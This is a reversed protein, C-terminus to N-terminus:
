KFLNLKPQMKYDSKAMAVNKLGMAVGKSMVVADPGNLNAYYTYAMQIEDDWAEWLSPSLVMNESYLPLMMNLYYELKALSATKFQSFLQEYIPKESDICSLIVWSQSEEPLVTIALRHMVGKETHKIKDGDMDFDPAIYAYDAFKIQGTIKVACTSIGNHTGSLIQSDFHAKVPEFEQMKLQLMRYYGVMDSSTFAPPNEKFCEKFVDVSIRHKYYEFIFAKYAYVFKMKESTEDFNPAGKEIAAFAINDHYDCFCTETTADNASIRSMEVIPVIVGNDLPILLPQKKANMMYVHRETGALLSIIKNNQLAHAAKIRGKCSAQDPHVCYKKMSARMREMLLVEPPKKSATVSSPKGKCCAIYTKGSGCPCPEGDRIVKSIFCMIGGQELIENLIEKDAPCFEYQPIEAPTIWRIDNHELMQPVGEAITANFLTLHVTIDPYEHFVDMFGGEVSLTIALEEQCERILAKEKTEGPKVKGGVFEWLLARTKTAPRQCILFKDNDWILAAVVEIM